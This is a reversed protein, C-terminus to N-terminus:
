QEEETCGRKGRLVAWAHQQHLISGSCIVCGDRFKLLPLAHSQRLLDLQKTDVNIREIFCLACRDKDGLIDSAFGDDEMGFGVKNTLRLRGIRLIGVLPRQMVGTLEDVPLGTWGTDVDAPRSRVQDIAGLRRQENGYDIGAHGQKVGIQDGGNM